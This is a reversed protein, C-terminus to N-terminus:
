RRKVRSARNALKQRLSASESAIAVVGSTARREPYFEEVVAEGEETSEEFAGLAFGERAAADLRRTSVPQAGALM